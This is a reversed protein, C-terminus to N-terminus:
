ESDSTRNEAGETGAEGSESGDETQTETAEEAAAEPAPSQGESVVPAPDKVDEMTPDNNYRM